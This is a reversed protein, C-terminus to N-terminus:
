YVDTLPGLGDIVSYSQNRRDDLYAANVERFTRREAIDVVKQINADLLPCNILQPLWKM